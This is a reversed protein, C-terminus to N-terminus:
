SGGVVTRGKGRSREQYCQIGAHLDHQHQPQGKSHFEHFNDARMSRVGSFVYVFNQKKIM